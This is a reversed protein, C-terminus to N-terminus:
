GLKPMHDNKRTDPQSLAESNQTNKKQLKKISSLTKASKVEKLTNGNPKFITRKSKPFHGIISGSNTKNDGKNNPKKNDKSSLNLDKNKNILIDGKNQKSIIGQFTEAHPEKHQNSTENLKEVNAESKATIDTEKLNDVADDRKNDKKKREGIAESNLNNNRGMTNSISQTHKRIQLLQLDTLSFNCFDAKDEIPQNISKVSLALGNYSKIPLESEM